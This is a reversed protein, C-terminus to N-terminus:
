VKKNIMKYKQDARSHIRVEGFWAVDSLFIMTKIKNHEKYCQMTQSLRSSYSIILYLLVTFELYSM